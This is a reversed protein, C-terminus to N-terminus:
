GRSRNLSVYKGIYPQRAEEATVRRVLGLRLAAAEGSDTASLILGDYDDVARAYGLEILRGAPRILSADVYCGTLAVITQLLARAEADLKGSM